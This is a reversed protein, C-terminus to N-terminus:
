KGLNLLYFDRAELMHDYAYQEAIFWTVDFMEQLPKMGEPVEYTSDPFYTGFKSWPDRGEPSTVFK